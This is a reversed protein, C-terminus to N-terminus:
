ISLLYERKRDRNRVTLVGTKLLWQLTRRAAPEPWGAIEIFEAATLPGHALLKQANTTYRGWPQKGPAAIDGGQKAGQGATHHCGADRQGQAQGTQYDGGAPCLVGCVPLQLARMAESQSSSHVAQM